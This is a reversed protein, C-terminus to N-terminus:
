EFERPAAADLSSLSSSNRVLAIAVFRTIHDVWNESHRDSLIGLLIGIGVAGSIGVIMLQPSRPFREKLVESDSKKYRLSHGFEGQIVRSLWDWYQIHM